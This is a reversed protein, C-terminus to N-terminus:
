GGMICLVTSVILVVLYRASVQSFTGYMKSMERILVGFSAYISASLMLSAVGMYSEKIYIKM